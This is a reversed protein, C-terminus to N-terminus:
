DHIRNNEHSRAKMAFIPQRHELLSEIDLLLSHDCKFLLACHGLVEDAKNMEIDTIKIFGITEM